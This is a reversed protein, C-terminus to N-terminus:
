RDEDNDDQPRNTKRVKNKKMGPQGRDGRRERAWEINEERLEKLTALQKDTLKNKVTIMMKMQTTKIDRELNIVKTLAAEAKAADVKDEMVIKELEDSADRLDWHLTNLKAQADNQAKLIVERQDKTIELKDANRMIMEPAFFSRRINIREEMMGPGGQFAARPAMGPGGPGGPGNRIIVKETVPDQAAGNFPLAMALLVGASILSITKM